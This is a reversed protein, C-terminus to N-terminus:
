RKPDVDAAFPVWGAAHSGMVRFPQPEDPVRYPEKKQKPKRKTKRKAKKM